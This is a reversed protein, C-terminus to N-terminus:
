RLPGAPLTVPSGPRPAFTGPSSRLPRSPSPRRPRESFPRPPEAASRILFLSFPRGRIGPAAVHHKRTPEQVPEQALGMGEIKGPQLGKGDEENEGKMQLHARVRIRLPAEMLHLLMAATREHLRKDKKLAAIQGKPEVEDLDYYLTLAKVTFQPMRMFQDKLNFSLDGKDPAAYTATTDLMLQMGMAKKRTINSRSAFKNCTKGTVLDVEGGM